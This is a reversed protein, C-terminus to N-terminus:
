KGKFYKLRRLDFAKLTGELIDSAHKNIVPNEISGSKFSFKNGNKKDINVFIIQEADGVIALNPNHTVLIIQRRQKALKIFKTLIRYISENDLNEEPQDVILPINDKDLMLYFVILLAGKEGPSLQSISKSGLKLEYTPEVYELSFLYHYFDELEKVQEFIYRRKEEDTKEKFAERHDVELIYIIKELFSRFDEESNIDVNDVLERLLIEGEEKGYFSGRLKQNIFSLFKDVFENRINLAAEIIIEYDELVETHSLIEKDIAEKFKKYIKVLEEKKKYIELTKNIREDRLQKLRNNLESNVFNIQKELWKITDPKTEDGLIENRKQKWKKLTELYKQYKKEPETLEKKIKEIESKIKEKKVMLSNETLDKRKEEEVKEINENILLVAQIDEIQKKFEKIKKEITKTNINFTIISDIDLGFKEFTAKNDQKFKEIRQKELKINKLLQSLEEQKLTLVELEKQKEKIETEINDLEKNLAELKEFLERQEKSLKEDDKPNKVEKPKNKEHEKLEEKKLSLKNELEQLYTPHQKKELEIIQKNLVDIENIIQNIDNQISQKKYDILEQFSSKGLKQEDPLYSFVINELTNPFEREEIENTLKEFFNQPLYRVREPATTDPKDSLNKIIKTKDEWELTAEFNQALGKALFRDKKLFSFDKYQHSNGCLGLIDVIASKGSGKNGIIAVLGSNFPIEIDKFWIGQKEDYGSVQTIALSKIFKTKNERVRKLLEPKEGIFVREKPEYKIQKLGEFTPDAKIWTYRREDPEFLRDFSHADSGWVCPKFSKFEKEYEKPDKYFEGLAWKITNPNSALLGDSKQIIIKRVNHDQSDWSIKSLDEDSPVFLLYKGEFISKKNSLIKTIDSDDVVANMMGVEIDSKDKFKEHEEKLRKGLEELNSITLARREDEQQPTGEYVFKLERLFNEEIDKISVKNSFIVHFNIRNKGVLKNLRFEINSLILIKKIKAIEEDTFLTSLKDDKDLYEEKIRKYGEISFYDTIGIVAIEKEIANKFLQKVYNDFDEGFQNNLCSYPTHVHLDWKRWESGRSFNNYRNM